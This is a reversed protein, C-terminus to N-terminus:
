VHDYAWAATIRRRTRNACTFLTTMLRLTYDAAPNQDLIVLLGRPAVSRGFNEWQGDRDSPV